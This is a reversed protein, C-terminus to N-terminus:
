PIVDYVRALGVPNKGTLMWLMGITGGGGRGRRGVLVFYPLRLSLSQKIKM